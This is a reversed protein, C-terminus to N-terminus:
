AGVWLRVVNAHGIVRTSHTYGLSRIIGAKAAASFRAGMANPSFGPPPDGAIARVQDATFECGQRALRAIARDIGERWLVDMGADAKALGADRAKIAAVLDLQEGIM